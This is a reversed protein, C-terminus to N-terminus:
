LVVGAVADGAVGGFDGVTRLWSHPMRRPSVDATIERRCACCLGGTLGSMWGVEGQVGVGDIIKYVHGGSLEM